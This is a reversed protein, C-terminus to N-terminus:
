SITLQNDIDAVGRTYRAACYGSENPTTGMPTVVGHDVKVEVQGPDVYINRDLAADVRDDWYLEDIISKKVEEDTHAIVAM